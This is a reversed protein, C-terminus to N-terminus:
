ELSKQIPRRGRPRNRRRNRRLRRRASIHTVALYPLGICTGLLVAGGAVVPVAVCALAGGVVVIGALKLTGTAVGAVRRVGSHTGGFSPSFLCVTHTGWRGGCKWCFQHGCRRCTMHPCGGNKEIHVRCSPCRKAHRTKWKDSQKDERKVVVEKSKSQLKKARECSLLADGARKAQHFSWLASCAACFTKSCTPCTVSHPSSLDVDLVHGECSNPCYFVDTRQRLDALAMFRLYREVQAPDLLSHVDDETAPAQCTTCMLRHAGGNDIETLYYQALCERCYSHGCGAYRYADKSTIMDLCIPCEFPAPTEEEKEATRAVTTAAAAGAEVTPTQEEAPKPAEFFEEDSATWSSFDSEDDSASESEESDSDGFFNAQSLRLVPAPPTCLDEALAQGVMKLTAESTLSPPRPALTCQASPAAAAASVPHSKEAAAVTAAAAAVPVAASPLRGSARLCAQSQAEVKTPRASTATVRMGLSVMLQDVSELLNCLTNLRASEESEDAVMREIVLALDDHVQELDGLYVQTRVQQSQTLSQRLAHGSKTLAVRRLFETRERLVRELEQEATAGSPIQQANDKHDEEEEEQDAELEAQEAQMAGTNVFPFPYYLPEDPPAGVPGRTSYRVVTGDEEVFEEVDSPLDLELDDDSLEEKPQSSSLLVMERTAQEEESIPVKGASRLNVDCM